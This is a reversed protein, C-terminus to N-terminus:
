HLRRLAALKAQYQDRRPGESLDEAKALEADAKRLQGLKFHVRALGFHFRHEERNLSVARRYQRMAGALDGAQELQLGLSFQYYPDKRLLKDARGQWDAAKAADGQKKYFAVLNAVAGMMERDQALAAHFYREAATADALRMSLVGANNLLSPSDPAYQLATDLWVKAEDLRGAVMLEISRNGYFAAFLAQDSVPNLSDTAVVDSSDIDIIFKRKDSARVIANAHRSQVVTEGIAGWGLIRDIEQGEASLGAERALAVILLTSSLCNVERQAYSEAVTLTADAKYEIGLKGEDFVFAVLKQLRAEPFRTADIVERRFSARLGDPIAMIQEPTPPPSVAQAQLPPPASQLALALALLVGNM